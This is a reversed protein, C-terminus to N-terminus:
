VREGDESVMLIYHGAALGSECHQSGSRYLLGQIHCSDSM